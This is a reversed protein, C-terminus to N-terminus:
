ATAALWPASAAPIGARDQGVNPGSPMSKNNPSSPGLTINVGDLDMPVVM